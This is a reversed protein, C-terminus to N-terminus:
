TAGSFRTFMQYFAVRKKSCMPKRFFISCLSAFACLFIDSFAFLYVEASKRRQTQGCALPTKEAKRLM